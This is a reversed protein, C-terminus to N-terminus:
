DPAGPAVKVVVKGLNRGALMDVLAAPAREIGEVRHELTRMSGDAVWTGVERRFEGARHAFDWVIFGRIEIRRSLVARMVDPVRNPGAPLATANYQSVLGCVPVRSFDNLLPLVADWVAGGVNEFYVDIGNPCAAKLRAPFDPARHDVAADFGFHEVLLRCKEAGGAIGVARCGRKRAIQGVASGVPGTAAAVVVTEGAKPRGIEALGAYATLGPMGLVGLAATLPAPAPDLRILGTGDSLAATCWGSGALVLTGPAFGPHRSSEVRCVAQGAMVDGIGVPEVYSRAASMRGRMYPDLSLWLVELRLQGDEPDPCPRHVIEFDDPRPEGEPRRRLLVATSPLPAM